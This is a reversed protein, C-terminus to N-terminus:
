RFSVLKAYVGDVFGCVRHMGMRGALIHGSTRDRPGGRGVYPAVTLSLLVKSTLASMSVVVSM